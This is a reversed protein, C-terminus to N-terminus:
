DAAVTSETQADLPEFLLVELTSLPALAHEIRPRVEAWNLGGNGCGLAPIAISTIERRQIEHILDTLGADIFEMRSPFRWHTKTPFNIIFHPRFLRGNDFIFMRGPAVERRSCAGQYAKFNKPYARKFELAIGKGMVGVCNVTNVLAEADSEWINGRGQTIM